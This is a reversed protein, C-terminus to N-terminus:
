GGARPHFDLHVRKLYRRDVQTYIQTTNISAFFKLGMTIHQVM